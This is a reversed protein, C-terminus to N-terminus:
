AGSGRAALENEAGRDEVTMTDVVQRADEGRWRRRLKEMGERYRHALEEPALHIALDAVAAMYPGLRSRELLGVGGPAYAVVPLILLATGLLALLLGMAAGALRDAWGLMAARLLKRLLWSVLGGAIMVGFFVLLYGVLSRVERSGGPWPLRSAVAEHFRCALLFAAVLAGLGFLIRVLGKVLGVVVMVAVFVVLAVDFM